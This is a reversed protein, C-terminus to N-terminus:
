HQGCPTMIWPTLDGYDFFMLWLRANQKEVSKGIVNRITIIAETTGKGSVFQEDAIHPELYYQIRTRIIELTVKAAHSILSICEVNQLERFKRYPSSTIFESTVRDQPWDGNEWIRGIISKLVTVTTEGGAKLM